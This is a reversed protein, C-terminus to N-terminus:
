LGWAKARWTEGNRHVGVTNYVSRRRHNQVLHRKV